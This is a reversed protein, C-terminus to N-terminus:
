KSGLGVSSALPSCVPDLAPSALFFNSENNLDYAGGRSRLGQDTRELQERAVYVGLARTRNSSDFDHIEEPYQRAGRRDEGFARHDLTEPSVRGDFEVGEDKM